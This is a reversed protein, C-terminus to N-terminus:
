VMYYLVLQTNQDAVELHNALLIDESPKYTLARQINYKLEIKLVYAHM